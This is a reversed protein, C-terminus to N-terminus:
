PASNLRKLEKLNFFGPSSDDGPLSVHIGDDDNTYFLEAQYQGMLAELKTLFEITKDTM